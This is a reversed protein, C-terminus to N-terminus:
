NLRVKEGRVIVDDKAMLRMAGDLALMDISDANIRLAGSVDLNMDGALQLVPGAENWSIDLLARGTSDLVRVAQHPELVLTAMPVSTESRRLKLKERRPLPDIPSMAAYSVESSTSPLAVNPLAILADECATCM